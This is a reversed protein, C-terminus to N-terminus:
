GSVQVHRLQESCLCDQPSRRGFSTTTRNDTLPVSQRTWTLMKPCGSWSRRPRLIASEVEGVAGQSVFEWNPWGSAPGSVRSSPRCGLAESAPCRSSCWMHRWRGAGRTPRRPCEASADSADNPGAQPALALLGCVRCQLGRLALSRLHVRAGARSLTSARQLRQARPGRQAGPDPSRPEGGGGAGSLAPSSSGGATARCQDPACACARTTVWAGESSEKKGAHLPVHREAGGPEHRSGNPAACPSPDLARHAGYAQACRRPSFFLVAQALNGASM